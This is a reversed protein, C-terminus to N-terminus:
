SLTHHGVFVHGVVEIGHHVAHSVGINGQPPEDEVSVCDMVFDSLDNM